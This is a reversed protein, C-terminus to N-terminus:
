PKWGFKKLTQIGFDYQAQYSQTSLWQRVTQGNTFPQISSYFGSVKAHITGAGHDINVVNDINHINESGFKSINSTTQEV